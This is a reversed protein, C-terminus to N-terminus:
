QVTWAPRASECARDTDTADQPLQVVYCRARGLGPLTRRAQNRGGEPRLWGADNLAKAARTASFGKCVERTFPASLIIYEQTAADRFGTRNHCVADHHQIDQFRSAGHTEIYGRVTELIAADESAGATGRDNLWANFCVSASELPNLEPPLVQAEQALMGAWAVLAFRSAVRLVQGCAGPPAFRRAIEDVQGLADHRIEAQHSVLWELFRPGAHGYNKVIMQTLSDAFSKGDALGHLDEFTGYGVGANAPIDALRVAMGAEVRGGGQELHHKLSHEGSSLFLARWAAPRRVSGGRSARTKGGGNALMYAASAVVESTAQGM